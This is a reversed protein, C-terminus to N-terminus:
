QGESIVSNQSTILNAYRFKSETVNINLATIPLNLILLRIQGQPVSSQGVSISGCQCGRLRGGGVWEPRVCLWNNRRGCILKKRAAVAVLKHNNFGLPSM